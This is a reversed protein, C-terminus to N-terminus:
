NGLRGTYEGFIMMMMLVVAAATAWKHTVHLRASNDVSRRDESTQGNEYKM